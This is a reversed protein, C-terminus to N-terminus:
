GGLELRRGAGERSGNRLSERDLSGNGEEQQCLNIAICEGNAYDTFM